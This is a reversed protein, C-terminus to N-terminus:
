PVPTCEWRSKTTQELKARIEDLLTRLVSEPLEGEVLMRINTYFDEFRVRVGLVSIEYRDVGHDEVGLFRHPVTGPLFSQTAAKIFNHPTPEVVNFEFRSHTEHERVLEWRNNQIHFRYVGHHPLKEPQRSANYTFGGRVLISITAPEYEAHHDFLMGPSPGSAIVTRMRYTTTDLAYIPTSVPKPDDAPGYGLRGIVFIDGEVLTASHFDTPRFVERPYGYIEVSGSDTTVWAEDAKPRIVVVDNYICFNPDYWDEHEGGICIVRGDLMATKSMGNRKFCWDPTAIWRRDDSLEQYHQELGFDDRVWWPNANTRAM